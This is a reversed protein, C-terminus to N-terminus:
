EWDDLLWVEDINEKDEKVNGIISHTTDNFDSIKAGKSMEHLGTNLM